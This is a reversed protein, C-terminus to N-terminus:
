KGYTSRILEMLDIRRQDESFNKQYQIAIEKRDEDSQLANRVAEVTSAVDGYPVKFGHEKVLEKM